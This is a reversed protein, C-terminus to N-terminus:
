YPGRPDEPDHGQRVFDCSFHMMGDTRWLDPIAAYVPLPVRLRRDALRSSLSRRILRREYVKEGVVSRKVWATDTVIGRGM